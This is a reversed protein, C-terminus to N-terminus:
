AFNKRLLLPVFKSFYTSSERSLAANAPIAVEVISRSDTERFIRVIQGESYRNKKM